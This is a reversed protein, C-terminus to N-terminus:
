FGESMAIRGSGLSHCTLEGGDSLACRFIGGSPIRSGTASIGLSCQSRVQAGGQSRHLGGVLGPPSREKIPKEVWNLKPVKIREKGVESTPLQGSLDARQPATSSWVRGCSTHAGVARLAGHQEEQGQQAIMGRLPSPGSPKTHQNARKLGRPSSGPAAGVQAPVGSSRSQDYPKQVRKQRSIM